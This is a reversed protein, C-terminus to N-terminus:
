NLDALTYEGSKIKKRTEETNEGLFVRRYKATTVSYNWADADLTIRGDNARFAIITRYSQFYTGEATQIEYQNAVPHGSRPSDMNSVKLSPINM